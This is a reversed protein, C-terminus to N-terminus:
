YENYGKIYIENLNAFRDTAHFTTLCVVKIAKFLTENNPLSIINDQRTNSLVFDGLKIESGDTKIGYLEIDKVRYNNLARHLLTVEKIIIPNYPGASTKLSEENFLGSTSTARTKTFTFILTFPYKQVATHTSTITTSWQTHWVSGSNADLMSHPGESASNSNSAYPTWGARLAATNFNVLVPDLVNLEVTKNESQGGNADIVYYTITHKGATINKLELTEGATPTPLNVETYNTAADIKYYLKANARSLNLLFISFKRIGAEFNINNVIGKAPFPLASVLYSFKKSELGNKGKAWVEINTPTSTPLKTIIYKNDFDKVETTVKEGMTNYSFYVAEVIERDVSSIDFKVTEDDDSIVKFNNQKVPGRENVDVEDLPIQTPIVLTNEKCGIFGFLLTCVIFVPLINNYIKKM